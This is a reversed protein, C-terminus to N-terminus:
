ISLKLLSVELDKPKKKLVRNSASNLRLENMKPKFMNEYKTNIEPIEPSRLFQMFKKEKLFPVVQDQDFEKNLKEIGKFFKTKAQFLNETNKIRDHDKRKYKWDHLTFPGPRYM